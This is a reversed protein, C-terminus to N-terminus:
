PCTSRPKVQCGPEYLSIPINEDFLKKQTFFKRHFGMLRSTFPIDPTSLQDCHCISKIRWFIKNNDKNGGLINRVDFNFVVSREGNVSRPPGLLSIGWDELFCCLREVRKPFIIPLCWFYNMINSYIQLFFIMKDNDNHWQWKTMTITQSFQAHEDRKKCLGWSIKGARNGNTDQQQTNDKDKENDTNKSNQTKQMTKTNTM